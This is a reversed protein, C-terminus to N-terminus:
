CEISEECTLSLSHLFSLDTASGDTCYMTVWGVAGLGVVGQQASGRIEEDGRGVWWWRRKMGIEESLMWGVYGISEM